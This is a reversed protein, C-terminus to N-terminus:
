HIVTFKVVRRDNHSSVSGFYVGTVLDNILQSYSGKVMWGKRISQLKAGLINYIEVSYYDNREVRWSLTLASKSTPNPYAELGFRIPASNPGYNSSDIGQTEILIATDSMVEISTDSLTSIARIKFVAWDGVNNLIASSDMSTQASSWGIISDNVGNITYTWIYHNLPNGWDPPMWVIILHGNDTPFQAALLSPIALFVFLFYKKMVTEMSVM